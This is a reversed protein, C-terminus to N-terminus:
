RVIMFYVVYFTVPAAFLMSDFRDLVGGHGPIIGGTDKIGATRKLSSEFLDGLIGFTGVMLGLGAAVYWPAAPLLTNTLVAGLLSGLLGGAAGEITKGPSLRPALKTKGMKKGVLYAITDGAWTGFLLIFIWTIGGDLTRILYFYIFMGVYFTGTLGATIDKSEVGPYLVTAVLLFFLVVPTVSLGWTTIGGMFASISLALVGITMAGVPPNMKMKVFIKNLEFLATMM